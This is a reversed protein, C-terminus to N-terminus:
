QAKGNIIDTLGKDWYGSKGYEVLRGFEKGDKMVVITPTATIHLAKAMNGTTNKKRDVAFLVIHDEPFGSAEQIKFFKPVIFHSDECWTGTFIIFYIKDKNNRFADVADTDPNQYIKQSEAYWHFSTDSELVNKDIIGLLMKANDHASDALFLISAKHTLKRLPVLRYM